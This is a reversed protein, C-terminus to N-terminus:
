HPACCRPSTNIDKKHKRLPRFKFKGSVLMHLVLFLFATLRSQEVSLFDTVSSSSSSWLNHLHPCWRHRPPCQPPPGPVEQSLYLSPFTHPSFLLFFVFVYSPWSTQLHPRCFRYLPTQRPCGQLHACPSPRPPSPFFTTLQGVRCDKTKDMPDKCQNDLQRHHGEIPPPFITDAVRSALFPRNSGNKKCIECIVYRWISFKTKAM